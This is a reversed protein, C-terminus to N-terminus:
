LVYGAEREEGLKAICGRFVMTSVPPSSRRHFVQPKGSPFMRSVPSPWVSQSEPQQKLGLDTGVAVASARSGGPAGENAAERNEPLGWARQQTGLCASLVNRQRERHQSLVSQKSYKTCRLSQGRPLACLLSYYAKWTKSYENEGQEQVIAFM